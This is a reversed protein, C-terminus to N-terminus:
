LRNQGARANAKGRNDLVYIYAKDDSNYIALVLPSTAPYVQDVSKCRYYSCLANTPNRYNDIEIFLLSEEMKQNLM